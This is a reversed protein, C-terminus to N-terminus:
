LEKIELDPLAIIQYSYVERLRDVLPFLEKETYIFSNFSLIIVGNSKDIYLKM